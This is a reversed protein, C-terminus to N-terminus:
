TRRRARAAAAPDRDVRVGAVGVHDDAAPAEVRGAARSVPERQCCRRASSARAVDDAVRRPQLPAALGRARGRGRRDPRARGAQRCVAGRRGGVAAGAPRAAVGGRRRGRQGDRGLATAALAARVREAFARAADADADPCSSSSSRAAGARRSTTPARTTARDRRRARDARPRGGRPGARRQRAQLPRPRVHRGRPALRRPDRPRGGRRPAGRLGPPQAPRHARRRAGGGQPRRRPARQARGARAVVAGVVAVSVVVDVWRDVNGVGPPMTALAAAHAVAICAVVGITARRRYFSATWLVPWM